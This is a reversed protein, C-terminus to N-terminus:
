GAPVALLVGGKRVLKQGLQIRFMGWGKDLIVRNLGAKAAVNRGLDEVKGRASATMSRVQLDELVVVKGKRAIRASAQEIM